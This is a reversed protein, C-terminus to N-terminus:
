FDKKIKCVKHEQGQVIFRPLQNVYIEEELIGNLFPYKLDMQYLPWQNQTAISLATRITDMREVPNFTEDYDIGYSQAYGKSVVKGQTKRDRM